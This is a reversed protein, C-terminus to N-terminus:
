MASELISNMRVASEQATEENIRKLTDEPNSSYGANKIADLQSMIAKGGSATIWKEIELKEDNQIFPTIIHEVEINDLENKWEVNMEGMFAKIVNCEREFFELWMGSEDGVKLHADTLLTQRADFGIGGLKMMNNFSIDPMQSQTWYMNLLMDVQYKLAEISQSWSVYGVDGGNQVRFIRASEGKNETGELSGVVKLIPTANYALTDSARSITYEAEERLCKLGYYLANLRYAYAGPIKKISIDQPEGVLEYGSSTHKWVYHKSSTFTEFFTVETDGIKKKYEFSQALMDDREDILPYLECGNMPSFTKCKLKYKSPFGYLTNQKEVTYWITFMECSAFYMEARKINEADIRAHKYILEMAHAIKKRTENGDINHYVRKVPIAFMFEVMRKVLLKELGLTIRAAKDISNDSRLKDKRGMKDKLIEHELPDYEKILNSWSELSISKKKLESIIDSAPRSLDIEYEGM